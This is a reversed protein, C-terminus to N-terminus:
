AQVMGVAVMSEALRRASEVDQMVAGNGCKVDLVLLELGAALKKVCHPRSSGWISWQQPSMEPPM